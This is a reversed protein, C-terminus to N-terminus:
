PFMKILLREPDQEVILRDMQKQSLFGETVMQGIFRVLPDYFGDVNLLGCPKDHYGIQQWTFVEIIEELTGIGGPMAIFGDSLSAMLAKRDHMSEVVHLETINRHGVEKEMLKQPIIGTVQSGLAMMEDAIVGMLGINGGGYVLDIKHDYLAKALRKAGSTYILKKGTGSGCFVAIRKQTMFHTKNLFADNEIKM